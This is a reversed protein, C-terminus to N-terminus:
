VDDLAEAYDRQAVVLRNQPDGLYKRALAYEGGHLLAEAALDYIAFAFAPNAAELQKFLDVTRSFDALHHHIAAVENFLDRDLEGALLRSTKQERIARLEELAKPYKRGLEMWNALAYSLRVGYYSPAIALAHEHFWVHKELAAEYDGEQALHKADDFARRVDDETEDSM